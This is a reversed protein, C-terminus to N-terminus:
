ADQQLQLEVERAVYLGREFLSSSLRLQEAM